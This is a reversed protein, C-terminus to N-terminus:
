PVAKQVRDITSRAVGNEHALGQWRALAHRTREIADSIVDPSLKAAKGLKTLHALGPNRGEGMVMTSQEGRPGSSFTLDYAPSLTWDGSADMLFSFNKSHDDRNHALVNFVALRYMKEVERVDRTLVGTLALLDEYDLAPTRFDAHLLGCATHMHLRNPGIRDFRRTAFYGAGTKAPFLHVDPMDVGAERAMLAYVYEVAGADNGDQMTGFKVLWPEFGEPLDSVGHAITRRDADLGILAKPRAGASSGNLALLEKLVDDAEGALVEQAQQALDDLNLAGETDDLSYDPEYVLAGMGIRGVHALRDLPTLAEPAIGQSRAFRDFLLQGWGDPLSDNFVGPLGEFLGAEFSSLGSKLPLRLPSIELGHKLFAADYEFYIKRARTALRGVPLTTGDLELGVRIELAPRHRTM